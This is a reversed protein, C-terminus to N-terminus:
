KSQYLEKPAVIHRPLGDVYIQQVEGMILPKAYAVFEDTVYTGEENIWERPVSRVVNAIQHVDKPATACLYPKESVREFAIMMGTMGEDAARVTAKGAEFAENVDALSAFHAAARQLISFEIARGKCGTEASIYNTLYTATGSLQKHGFADVFDNSAGYECIYTGEADRIGESVAVIVSSKEKLLNKVRETFDKLDFAVEPLYIMDPGPCDEGKCLAAAATLWGADRGMIEVITVQGKTLDM